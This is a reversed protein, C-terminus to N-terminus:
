PSSPSPSPPSPSPSPPSLVPPATAPESLGLPPPPADVDSPDHISTSTPPARTGPPPGRGIGNRVDVAHARLAAAYLDSWRGEEAQAVLQEAVGQALNMGLGLALAGILVAGNLGFDPSAIFFLVAALSAIDMVAGGVGLSGVILKEGLTGIAGEVPRSRVISGDPLTSTLSIKMQKSPEFSFSPPETLDFSATTEAAPAVDSTSLARNLSKATYNAVERQWLRSPSVPVGPERIRTEEGDFRLGPLPPGEAVVPTSPRVPAIVTTCGTSFALLAFTAVLLVSAVRNM